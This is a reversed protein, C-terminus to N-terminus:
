NEHGTVRPRMKLGNTMGTCVLDTGTWTGNETCRRVTSGSAESEEKCSFRCVTDYLM